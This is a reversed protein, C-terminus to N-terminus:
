EATEGLEAKVLSESLAAIEVTKMSAVEEPTLVREIVVEIPTLRFPFNKRFNKGGKIAALVVPCKAKQAIKYSGPKFEGTRGDKSRTGEPFIGISVVDSAIMDAAENITKIAKRPDDRDIPLHRCAHMYRRIIPIKYNEPKTIFVLDYKKLAHCVILPDFATTHNATVLFRTGQPIKEAGVLKVRFGFITLGYGFTYRILDLYFPNPRDYQKKMDIPLSFLWMVIWYLIFVALLTGLVWFPFRLFSWPDLWRLAIDLGGLLVGIVLSLYYVAM